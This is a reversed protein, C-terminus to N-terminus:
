LFTFKNLIIRIMKISYISIDIPVILILINKKLIYLILHNIYLFQYHIQVRLIFLIYSM